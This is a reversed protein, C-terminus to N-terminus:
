AQRLQSLVFDTFFFDALSSIHLLIGVVIRSVCKNREPRFAPTIFTVRFAVQCCKEIQARLTPWANKFLNLSRIM